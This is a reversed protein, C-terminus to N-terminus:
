QTTGNNGNNFTVMTSNRKDNEMCVYMHM